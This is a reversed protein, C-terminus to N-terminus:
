VANAGPRVRRANLLSELSRIKAHCLKKFYDLLFQPTNRLAAGGGDLAFDFGLGSFSSSALPFFSRRPYYSSQLDRTLTQGKDVIEPLGQSFAQAYCAPVFREAFGIVQCWFLDQRNWTWHDYKKKIHYAGFATVLHQPSFPSDQMSRETFSQRFTNLARCIATNNQEKNLAAELDIESAADIAAIIASFNFAAHPYRPQIQREKEAQGNPIQNFYPEMMKWMDDDWEHLAIQLPTGSVTRGSHGIMTVAAIQTLLTPDSQLLREAEEQEGYAVHQVLTEIPSTPNPRVQASQQPPAFFASSPAASAAAPAASSSVQEISKQPKPLQEIFEASLKEKCYAIIDQAGHEQAFTFIHKDKMDLSPGDYTIGATIGQQPTMSLLRPDLTTLKKFTPLNKNAVADRLQQWLSLPLYVNNEDETLHEPNEKLFENIETKYRQIPNLSGDLKARTLPSTMNHEQM